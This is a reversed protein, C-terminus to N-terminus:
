ISYDQDTQEDDTDTLLKNLINKLQDGKNYTLALRSLHDYVGYVALARDSIQTIRVHIEFHSSDLLLSGPTEAKAVYRNNKIDTAAKSYAAVDKMYYHKFVDLHDPVAKLEKKGRHFPGKSYIGVLSSSELEQKSDSVQVDENKMKPLALLLRGKKIDSGVVYYPMLQVESKSTWYGLFVTSAQQGVLEDISQCSLYGRASSILSHDERDEKFFGGPLTRCFEIIPALNQSDNESREKESALDAGTLALEALFENRAQLYLPSLEENVIGFGAAALERGKKDM